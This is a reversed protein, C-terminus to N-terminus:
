GRSVMLSRWMALCKWEAAATCPLWSTFRNAVRPQEAVALVESVATKQSLRSSIRSPQASSANRFLPSVVHWNYSTHIKASRGNVIRQHILMLTEEDLVQALM